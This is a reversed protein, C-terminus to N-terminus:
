AEEQIKKGRLLYATPAAVFMSTITGIVVGLIMAFAFSRISAGGFIFIFLLVILTSVSTNITRTLTANLSQNFLIQKDRKPYLSLNERIRDFVVVKDNISYGICTLLAGIFTQDIELSFPMWGWCASYMGLIFITDVALATIAGASFTWSRFRVLIYVFIVILALFVSIIAGRTINEAISPGVKQSSIISGGAREDRNIFNELTLDSSLQGGAKLVQFLKEEIESDVEIGEEEIRYNTSIRVTKGETGLAIVSTNSEPFAESMAPRISEPSVEQEFQVVFNRGGTFDISRSFGRTFMLGLSCLVIAGFITFSTKWAGMFNYHTNSLFKRSIGTTFTLDLWKDKNMLSEFVLRTLFVATFFSIIIGIIYTTAFGRIPGTGFYYLIIGTLVSTVNSDIIASFANSYGAQMAQRVAKGARMEEKTREFILVNADVAMGLTLVMGAIGSMTLAAQFSTLIGLTFFLNLILAGNAVMGARFGYMAIMYFMLAIFAVIVSIFGMRISEAGLTPGVIEESVINAPAPMKGSKLVNALDRTDEATFNGTIQSNGGTIENQVNPASYVLNDLVIAVPRHINAKTLAAWRRAGEVNMQMSVCPRSNQDYEDKADTVVDGELPARGNRETVKIAYLEFVEENKDIGKVGWLLRMDEPLVAKAEPTQLLEDIIAMDRKNAYGVVAGNNQNIVQLRALLPHAKLAQEDTAATAAESKAATDEGKAIAALADDASTAATTDAAAQAEAQGEASPESVTAEDSGEVGAAALKSDLSILFPAAETTIYTEWFELNASGQLLKRVREPEKIGPLEVMIRGEQGELAQINPQVVGFRDIRTRIVNFSNDIAAKVEERLVAEVERDTSKTNVKGRLQQTAFLEALSSNPAIEKYDKVFLSIFDGQGQKAEQKAQAIAQKFNPDEKHDALAEVVDPVSVELIVNMGGKLDLGLGIGMERCQKLTWAGFYVKENQLSDLYHQGAAEGEVAAIEEAKGEYHRVVFSFSLYFICVLALLVAFAKVFGKNQM